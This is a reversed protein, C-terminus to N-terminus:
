PGRGMCNADLAAEEEEECRVEHVERLVVRNREVQRDLAVALGSPLLLVKTIVLDHPLRKLV